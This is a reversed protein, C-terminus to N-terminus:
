FFKLKYITQGTVDLESYTKVNQSKFFQDIDRGLIYREEFTLITCSIGVMIVDIDNNKWQKPIQDIIFEKDLVM